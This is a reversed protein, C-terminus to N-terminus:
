DPVEAITREDVYRVRAGTPQGGVSVFWEHDDGDQNGRLDAGPVFMGAIALVATKADDFGSLPEGAQIVENNTGVIRVHWPESADTQVIEFRASM